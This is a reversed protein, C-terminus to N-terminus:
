LPAPEGDAPFLLKLLPRYSFGSADVTLAKSGNGDPRIPTWPDGTVGGDPVGAIRAAKSGGVRAAIRGNVMVLRVRRCIQIYLPHLQSWPLPTVGDWSALWVLALPDPQATPNSRPPAGGMELLRQIDRALHRGPGGWDRRRAFNCICGLLLFFPLSWSRFWLILRTHQGTKTAPM